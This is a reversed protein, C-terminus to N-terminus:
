IKIKPMKPKSPKPLKIKAASMKVRPAKAIHTSGKAFRPKATRISEKKPQYLKM